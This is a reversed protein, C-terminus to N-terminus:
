TTLRESTKILSESVRNKSNIHHAMEKLDEDKNAKRIKKIDQLSKVYDAMKIEIGDEVTSIDLGTFHFNDNQVNSVTM